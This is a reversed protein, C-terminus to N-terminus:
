IGDRSKAVCSAVNKWWEAIGKVAYNDVAKSQCEDTGSYAM